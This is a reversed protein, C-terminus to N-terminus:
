NCAEHLSRKLATFKTERRADILGFRTQVLCGGRTVEARGEFQIRQGRENSRLLPSESRQLLELDDPHLLITIESTEEVESLAERVTMEVMDTSIALKGVLKWALELTLSILASECERAVQPVAQRLSALVGDQVEFLATRERALEEKLVEERKRFFQESNQEGPEQPCPDLKARNGSPVEALRVNRLPLSFHVTEFWPKM